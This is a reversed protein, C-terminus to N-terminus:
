SVCRKVNEHEETKCTKDIKYISNGMNVKHILLKDREQTWLQMIDLHQISLHQALYGTVWVDDPPANM